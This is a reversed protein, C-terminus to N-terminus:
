ATLYCGFRENMTIEYYQIMAGARKPLRNGSVIRRIPPHSITPTTAIAPNPRDSQIYECRLQGPFASGNAADVHTAAYLRAVVAVSEAM